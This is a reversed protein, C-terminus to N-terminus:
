GLVTRRHPRRRRPEPKPSLPPRRPRRRLLHPQVRYVLHRLLKFASAHPAHVGSIVLLLVAVIFRGPTHPCRAAAERRNQKERAGGEQLPCRLLAAIVVDGDVYPLGPYREDFRM